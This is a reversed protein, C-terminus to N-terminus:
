CTCTSGASHSPSCRVLLDVPSSTSTSGGCVFGIGLGLVAQVVTRLTLGVDENATSLGRIVGTGAEGQEEDRQVAGAVAAPQPRHGGALESRQEDECTENEQAVGGPRHGFSSTSRGPHRYEDSNEADGRGQQVEQGGVGSQERHDGDQSGEVRGDGNHESGTRRSRALGTWRIPSTAAVAATAITVM